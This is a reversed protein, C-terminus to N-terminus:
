SSSPTSPLLYAETRRRCITEGRQETVHEPEFRGCALSSSNLFMATAICNTLRKM